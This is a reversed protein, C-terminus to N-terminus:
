GLKELSVSFQFLNRQLWRKEDPHKRIIENLSRRGITGRADMGTPNELQALVGNSPRTTIPQLADTKSSASYEYVAKLSRQNSNTTYYLHIYVHIFATIGYDSNVSLAYNSLCIPYVYVIIPYVYQVSM